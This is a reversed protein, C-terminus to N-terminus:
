GNRAAAVGIRSLLFAPVQDLPLVAQAAGITVAAGPMGFVVSSAEDQACTRGGAQRIALLGEAGDKGMGTLLAARLGLSPLRAASHFLVDVAPRSYKVPAGEVLRVKPRTRTKELAMHRLGGPAILAIGPVLDDGDVAERVGIQCLSDLRRAFPATFGAPMHQVVLIPPCGAPFMPLIRSLAEVGGTSCGICILGSAGDDPATLPQPQPRPPAPIGPRACQRLRTRGAAHVRDCIEQMQLPWGDALGITPKGIVDVAGAALADLSLQTGQQTLSSIMVTPTPAVPMFRRLFEVGNMRPMEVDLTIVDPELEVLLDRAQYPNSAQGVVKIRRDQSLGRVLIHRVLASDDVVLVRVPDISTKEM